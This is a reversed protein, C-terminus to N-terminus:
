YPRQHFVVEEALRVGFGFRFQKVPDLRLDRLVIDGSKVSLPVIALGQKSQTVRDARPQVWVVLVQGCISRQLIDSLSHRQCQLVVKDGLEQCFFFHDAGANGLRRQDAVERWEHFGLRNVDVLRAPGPCFTRTDSSTADLLFVREFDDCGEFVRAFKLDLDRLAGLLNWACDACLTCLPHVVAGPGGVIRSVVDDSNSEVPLMNALARKRHGTHLRLGRLALGCSTPDRKAHQNWDPKPDLRRARIAALELHLNNAGTTVVHRATDVM